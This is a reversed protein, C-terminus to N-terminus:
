PADQEDVQIRVKSTLLDQMLGTKLERLKRSYAIETRLKKQISNVRAVIERQESITPIVIEISRIEQQSINKMSGSTGTAYMEIQRRATPQQLQWFLFETLMLESNTRLRLSKDSLILQPRTKEVFCVIGVLDFTNSRSILLDGQKVEYEPKIHAPDVIVKNEQERFGNPQMASVKLVGWQDGGAPIDPCEPSKGADIGTLASSTKKVEWEKPIWGLPSQKYLAPAEAQPPRLRGQADVGRTLLDHLLGQKVAQYKAILAATREILDDVTTLIRAIKRQENESSPVSVTYTELEKRKIHRMTSGHSGGSISEMNYDLIYFIFRKDFGEKPVVKFLHQNLVGPGHKWIAVKLTASWSFILNGNEIHHIEPYPGNYYDYKGQPNNLQEIRIIKVGEEVWDSPKFAMGNNYHAMQILPVRIWGDPLLNLNM